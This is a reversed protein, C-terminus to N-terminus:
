ARATATSSKGTPIKRPRSVFRRESSREMIQEREVRVPANVPADASAARLKDIV